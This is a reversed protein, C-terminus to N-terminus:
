QGKNNSSSTKSWEEGFKDKLQRLTSEIAVEVAKQDLTIGRKKAESVLYEAAKDFKEGSGYKQEAYQVARLALVEIIELQNQNVKGRIFKVGYFIIVSGLLYLVDQLLQVIISNFEM